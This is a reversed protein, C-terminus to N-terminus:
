LLKKGGRIRSESRNIPLLRHASQASLFNSLNLAPWDSASVLQSTVPQECGQAACGPFLSILRSGVEIYFVYRPDQTHDFRLRVSNSPLRSMYCPNQTHDFQLKVSNSRLRSMYRPHQTHDFRLRVSNGPLRSM